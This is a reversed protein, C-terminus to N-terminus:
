RFAADWLYLFFFCICPVELFDDVVPKASAGYVDEQKGDPGIVSDFDFHMRESGVLDVGTGDASRYVCTDFSVWRCPM